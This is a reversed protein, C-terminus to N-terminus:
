LMRVLSKVRFCTHSTGPSRFPKRPSDSAQDRKVCLLFDPGVAAVIDSPSM